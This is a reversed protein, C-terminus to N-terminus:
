LLAFFRARLYHSNSYHRVNSGELNSAMYDPVICVYRRKQRLLQRYRLVVFFVRFSLFLLNKLITQACSGYYFADCGLLGTSMGVVALFKFLFRRQFQLDTCQKIGPLKFV